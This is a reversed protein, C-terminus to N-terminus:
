KNKRKRPKPRPKPKLAKPPVKVLKRMLSDFKDFGPPKDPMRKGTGNCAPCAVGISAGWPQVGGSDVAGSGGCAPCSEGSRFVSAWLRSVRTAEEASLRRYDEGAVDELFDRDDDSYCGAGDPSLLEAIKMRTGCQDVKRTPEPM